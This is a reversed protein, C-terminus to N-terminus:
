APCAKEVIEALDYVQLDIKKLRSQYKLNMYCMPCATIIAEVELPLVEELLHSYAISGALDPSFTWLGGGGGCCPGYSRNLNMDTLKVRPISRIVNRPPEYVGCH